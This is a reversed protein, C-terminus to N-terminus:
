YFWTMFYKNEGKVSKVVLFYFLAQCSNMKCIKQMNKQLCMRKYCEEINDLKLVQINKRELINLLIYKKTLILDVWSM